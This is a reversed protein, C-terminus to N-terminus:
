GYRVSKSIEFLRAVVNEKYAAMENKDHFVIPAVITTYHPHSPPFLSVHTGLQMMSYVLGISDNERYWKHSYKSALPQITETYVKAGTLSLVGLKGVGYKEISYGDINELVREIVAKLFPHEPAAIVHWQQYEGYPYKNSMGWKGTPFSIWHALVYDQGDIIKDLPQIAGSKIDFYAGGVKYILLYRFLDARAAGYLPNIKNYVRLVNSDYNDEIFDLIDQDDYLRYEWDPNLRKLVEQVHLIPKPLDDKRIYTQHIIKPVPM